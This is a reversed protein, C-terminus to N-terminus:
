RNLRRRSQTSFAVRRRVADKEFFRADEVADGGAAICVCHTFWGHLTWAGEIRTEGIGAIESDICRQIFLCILRTMLPLPPGATGETEALAGDDRVFLACARSDLVIRCVRLSWAKETRAGGRERLSRTGNGSEIIGSSRLRM